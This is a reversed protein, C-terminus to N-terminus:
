FFPWRSLLCICKNSHVTKLIRYQERIHKNKLGLHRLQLDTLKEEPFEEYFSVAAGYAKEGGSTTLIFTSFVPLPHQAKASWCEITAGMPLCFLPVSAPLPFNEYDDPPFRGLIAPKYALVDAKTMAKKYCLYIDSGVMAKNLNKNIQCYAHPASENKNTLIICIDVVALTDSSATESARRYTIYIRSSNSNNVNAPNGYPTTHVIECGAMLKEKGEYLVGIDTLPPKERSRRYCIFMEPCRISGYNLDAPLGSQTRELCVYGKPEKEGLSKNIVCIDTIPDQKCTPKIIAENSFEELPLPSDPLGAVVFYDAVRREDM